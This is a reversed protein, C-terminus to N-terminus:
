SGRGPLRRRQSDVVGDTVGVTTVPTTIGTVRPDGGSFRSVVSWTLGNDDFVGDLLVYAAQVATVYAAEFNNNTVDGEVMGLVYNRGRFSRGRKATNFKIALAVSNPMVPGVRTGPVIPSSVRTHTFSDVSTLDTVHIERLNVTTGQLPKMNTDWWAFLSDALGQAMGLTVSPSGVGYLTNEVQQNDWLYRIEAMLCNPVPIFPM